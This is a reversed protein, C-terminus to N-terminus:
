DGLGLTRLLDDLEPPLPALVEVREGSAPHEFALRRAHLMLRQCSALAARVEAAVRPPPQGYLVDGVVPHGLAALHVRIQHTRGTRLDIGLWAVGSASSLLRYETLAPRGARSRTSMLRRHIPHRGIPSELRGRPRRPVGWVLARYEKDIRRTRFQASLAHHAVDTRAVVLCGSTDRDLRHVIGPREPGGVSSLARGSGLLQHVLTGQRRGAGPHVTLGAPKNLVLLHEDELLVEVEFPEPSLPSSAPEPVDGEILAGTPPHFDAERARGEVRVRGADLLRRAASRSLGEVSLAVIRDLRQGRM